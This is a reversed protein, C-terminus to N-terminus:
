ILLDTELHNVIFLEEANGITITNEGASHRLLFINCANSETM